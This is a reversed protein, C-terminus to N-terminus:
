TKYSFYLRSMIFLRNKISLDNAQEELISSYQNTETNIQTDTSSLTKNEMFDFCVSVLFKILSMSLLNLHDIIFVTKEIQTLRKFYDEILKKNPVNGSTEEFM